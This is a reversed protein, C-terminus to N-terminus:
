SLITTTKTENYLKEYYKCRKKYKKIELMHEKRDNNVVGIIVAIVGLVVLVVILFMIVSLIENVM